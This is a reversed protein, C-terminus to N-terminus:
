AIKHYEKIKKLKAESIILSRKAKQDQKNKNHHDAIKKVKAQLNILTPEQFKNNEELVEKIKLGYLRVKPIGYADRLTLGIKEATLDKNALKLIISKVEEKTYKLWVPKEMTETKTRAM